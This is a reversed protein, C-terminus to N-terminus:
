KESGFVELHKIISKGIAEGLKPPVANGIQIGLERSTIELGESEVIFRYKEPFTQLIAGERFSLARDQEPHGFRGNGYGYFQTTITPSPKDWEMRGYVSPYSKGSDKSHCKLKLNEDWDRWTGGPTSQKIRQRNIKSLKASRHMSDIEHTIGDKIEPLDYIADRVTVYNESQHTPEILHIEGLKSALLVLRKRTQPIGYDPCYVISYSVFYGLESLKDVFNKFINEKAIGPVNELSVINPRTDEIVRLFEDILYYRSKNEKTNLGKDYLLGQKQYRKAYSSFPQCPACGVLIRIESEGFLKSIGESSYETLDSEIFPAKNNVEYSFRCKENIDLGAIVNLGSKKLGYSLGGIGCFLDVVGSKILKSEAKM